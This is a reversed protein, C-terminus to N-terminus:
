GFDDTSPCICGFCVTLLVCFYALYFVDFLHLIVCSFGLGEWIVLSVTYLGILSIVSTGIMRNPFKFHPDWDYVRRQFWSTELKRDFRNRFKVFGNKVSWSFDKLCVVLEHQINAHGVIFHSHNHTMNFM